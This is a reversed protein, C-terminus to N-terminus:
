ICCWIYPLRSTYRKTSSDDGAIRQAKPTRTHQQIPEYSGSIDESTIFKYSEDDKKCILSTIHRPFYPQTYVFTRYDNETSGFLLDLWADSGDHMLISDPDEEQM